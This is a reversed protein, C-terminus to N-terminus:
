KYSDLLFDMAAILIEQNTLGHQSGFAKLRRYRNEDMRVTVAITPKVRSSPTLVPSNPAPSPVPAELAVPESPSEIRDIVPAADGKKPILPFSLPAAPSKSM